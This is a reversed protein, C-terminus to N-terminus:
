ALAVLPFVCLRLPFASYASFFELFSLRVIDCVVIRVRASISLMPGGSGSSIPSVPM